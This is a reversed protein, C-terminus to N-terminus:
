ANVYAFVRALKSSPDEKIQAYVPGQQGQTTPMQAMQTIYNNIVPQQMTESSSQQQTPQSEQSKRNRGFLDFPKRKAGIENKSRAEETGSVLDHHLDGISTNIQGMGGIVKEHREKAIKENRLKENHKSVFYSVGGITALLALIGLIAAGGGAATGGAAAAGGATAAGGAAAAAGETAAAGAAAGAGASPTAISPRPAVPSKGKGLGRRVFSFFRNGGKKKKGDESTEDQGSLDPNEEKSKIEPEAPEFADDDDEVGGDDGQLVQHIKSLDGHLIKLSSLASSQFRTDRAEANEGLAILKRIEQPPEGVMQSVQKTQLQLNASFPGSDYPKPKPKPVFKLIKSDNPEVNIFPANEALRLPATLPFVNDGSKPSDPPLPPAPPPPTPPSLPPSRKRLKLIPASSPASTPTSTPTSTAPPRVRLLDRIEEMVRILNQNGVSTGRIQTLLEKQLRTLINISAATERLSRMVVEFPSSPAGSSPLGGGTLRDMTKSFSSTFPVFSSTLGQVYNAPNLHQVFGSLEASVKTKLAGFPAGLMAPIISERKAKKMLDNAEKNLVSERKLLDEKEKNIKLREDEETEVNFQAELIEIQERLKQAEQHKKIAEQASPNAKSFRSGPSDDEPFLPKGQMLRAGAGGVASAMKSLNPFRSTAGPASAPPGDSM